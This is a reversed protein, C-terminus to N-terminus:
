LSADHHHTALWSRIFVFFQLVELRNKILALTAARASLATMHSIALGTITALTHVINHVRTLGRDLVDCRVTHLEISARTLCTAVTALSADADVM